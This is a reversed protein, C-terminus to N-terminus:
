LKIFRMTRENFQLLYVGSKLSSVDFSFQASDIYSEFLMQGNANLVKVTGSNTFNSIELNIFDNVPNPFIRLQAQDDLVPDLSVTLCSNPDGYVEMANFFDREVTYFASGSELQFGNGVGNTMFVIGVKRVPDYYLDSVLGYAEGPHGFMMQSGPLVIDNSPTSTIRHVGLGWSRFLGSYYNGNNGNYTWQNDVMNAVSQANLIPSDCMDPNFICMFIKALDKASCRLGGQPGFRGGNTGITYNLTNAYVPQTGQYNDVQPTWVGGIKRYLVAVDDIDGIDNVNFSADIGLPHFINQYCYVDFSQNAVKEVITALIVFNINSYNFYTGPVTNNFQTFTYFSGSPTLIESLNPIPYDSVTSSLFSSYTPGDIITSKHSLLMQVTIAESPYNPNQVNFGLISSIDNNLGLLNQEVLQMVAIATITKSISAIRFKTDEHLDIDRQLDAKGYYFTDIIENECFIVAAAGLMDHDLAINTLESELDQAIMLNTTLLLAVIITFLTKM